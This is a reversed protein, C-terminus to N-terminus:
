RNTTGEVNLRSRGTIGPSAVSDLIDDPNLRTRAIYEDCEVRLSLLTKSPSFLTVMAAVEDGKYWTVIYIPVFPGKAIPGNWYPHPRIIIRCDRNLADVNMHARHLWNTALSYAANTNITSTLLEKNTCWRRCLDDQNQAEIYSLKHGVSAYYVFHRTAITGIMGPPLRTLGPRVVFGQCICEQTIPLEEPLELSRAVENAQSILAVLVAHEYAPTTFTYADATLKGDSRILLPVLYNTSASASTVPSEALLPLCFVLHFLGNCALTRLTANAM